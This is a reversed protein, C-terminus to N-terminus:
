PARPHSYRGPSADSVSTLCLGGERRWVVVRGLEVPLSCDIVNMDDFPAADCAHAHGAGVEPTVYIDCMV